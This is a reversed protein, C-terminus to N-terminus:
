TEEPAPATAPKEPALGPETDPAGRKDGRARRPRSRGGGQATVAADEGAPAAEETPSSPPHERTAPTAGDDGDDDGDSTATAPADNGGPAPESPAEERGQDVGATAPEDGPDAAAVEGGGPASVGPEALTADETTPAPAIGLRGATKIATHLKQATTAISGFAAAELSAGGVLAGDIDRQSLLAEANDAKVSGGYLLRTRRALDGGVERLLARIAAHVEQADSPAAVRGTGIAWVPEYAIVGMGPKRALLERFAQVQRTVVEITHGADREELTEGVCVIPRIETAMAADVKRAVTEDTEGFLQRRESHGIIVYTAGADVLMAPSIEGTFAGASEFHMNQAAVAVAGDAADALEYTVAALATFPPAVVLEVTDLKRAVRAVARALACGDAGGANMKWNGAVLPKRASEM